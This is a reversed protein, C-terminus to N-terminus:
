NGRQLNIAICKSDSFSFTIAERKFTETLNEVFGRGRVGVFEILDIQKQGNIQISSDNLEQQDGYYHCINIGPLIKHYDDDLYSNSTSTPFDLYRRTLSHVLIAFVIVCFVKYLLSDSIKTM